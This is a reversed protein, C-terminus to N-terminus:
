RKEYNFLGKMGYLDDTAKIRAIDKNGFMDVYENYLDSYIKDIDLKRNPNSIIHIDGDHCIVVSYNIKDEKFLTRIDAISPRSSNPHNHMLVINNKNKMIMEYQERNFGTSGENISNYNSSIVNGTRSDLAVIDEYNTGDRHELITTSEQYVSENVSKHETLNEFKDHYQKRNVLKRNVTYANENKKDTIKKIQSVVFASEIYKVYKEEWEKFSLEKDDTSRHAHRTFKDNFYPATTCRCNPHFPPATSGIKYEEIPHHEGHRGKCRKCTRDSELASSIKYDKTGNEKYAEFESVSAFYASETRVLTKAANLSVDFSDAIKKAIKTPNDGRKICNTFDNELMDVLAERHDGWIRKSFNSGDSAWPKSIVAETEKENIGKFDHYVGLAKQYEYGTKHYNDSYIDKLTSKVGKEEVDFAKSVHNKMQTKIAELRTIHYKASANELEKMWKQNVANEKGYKIYEEVSWKFEDLEDDNLLRRAEQMSIENNKAIRNYWHDIDKQIDTQTMKYQKELEECLNETKDVQNKRLEIIRKDWYAESSKTM